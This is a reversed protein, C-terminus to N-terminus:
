KVRTMEFTVTFTTGDEGKRLGTWNMSDGNITIEWWERDEHDTTGWRTCLLKGAVFYESIPDTSSNWGDGDTKYYLYTGDANYEWRHKQSDDFASGDSTCRGEWLGLIDERYDENVRTLAIPKEAIVTEKSGEVSKVSLMGKTETDTISSISLVDVLAANGSGPRTITVTSGDISVSAEAPDIWRAGDDPIADYVTSIYAKGGSAFSVVLKENTLAPKDDIESVMWTGNIIESIDPAAAEGAKSQSRGSCATFVLAGCLVFILLYVTHLTLKKM